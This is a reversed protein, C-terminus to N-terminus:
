TQEVHARIRGLGDVWGKSQAFIFMKEFSVQWDPDAALDGVLRAVEERSIWLHEPPRFRVSFETLDDADTLSAVALEAVLKM